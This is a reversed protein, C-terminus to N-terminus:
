GRLQPFDNLHSARQAAQLAAQLQKLQHYVIALNMLSITSIPHDAGYHAEQIKLARELLRRKKQPNGVAGYVNALNVLNATMQWHDPGYHAKQIKLARELYVRARTMDKLDGYATALNGLITATKWHDLGYHTEQIKLARELLDCKKQVDGLEGHVSALETLTTATEWHDLGYHAEQIKLTRELLHHKELVNGLNGQANALNILTVATQWHGSGYHAEQIELACKLLHYKKQTDGLDGYANALNTLTGATQWHDPGYHTKQIKLARELLTRKKGVQGLDSCADALFFLALSLTADEMLKYQAHYAIVAELHPIFGFRIADWAKGVGVNEPPYAVVLLKLTQQLQATQEQASLRERMVQQVLRHVQVSQDIADLQILSYAHLRSRAETMFEQTAPYTFTYWTELVRSPIKQPGLFACYQLLQKARVQKGKTKEEKAIAEISMDWTIFVPDPKRLGLSGEAEAQKLLYSAREKYAKLYEGVSIDNNLIYASAQVLALPLCGLVDALQPIDVDEKRRSLSKILTIAEELSLVNVEIPIFSASLKKPALRTTLLVDGAGATPLYLEIDTRREADVNDYVILWNPNHVLWQMVANIIEKDPVYGDGMLGKDKAFLRYSNIVADPTDASFWFKHTYTKTSTHAYELALRTKGIGGLGTCLVVKRPSASSLPAGKQDGKTTNGRAADPAGFHGAMTHLLETRGIFGEIQRPLDYGLPISTHSSRRDGEKVEKKAEKPTASPLAPQEQQSLLDQYFNERQLRDMERRHWHHDLEKQVHHDLMPEALQNYKNYFDRWIAQYAEPPVQPPPYYIWTILHELNKIYGNVRWDRVTRYLHHEPLTANVRSGSVLFPFVRVQGTARIDADYKQRLLSLETQIIKFEPHNHKDLLSETCMLLAFESTQIHNTFTVISGGAQNDIIDLRPKIGAQALHSYLERLFPQLWGEKEQRSATQLPWAYSIFCRQGARGEPLGQQIAHLTASLTKKIPEKRLIFAQQAYLAQTKTALQAPSLGEEQLFFAHIEKQLPNMATQLATRISYHFGATTPMQELWRGMVELRARIEPYYLNQDQIPFFDEIEQMGKQIKALVARIEKKDALHEALKELEPFSVTFKFAAAPHLQDSKKEEKKDAQQPKPQHQPLQVVVDSRAPTSSSSSSSFRSSFDQSM